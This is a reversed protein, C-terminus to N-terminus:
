GGHCGDTAGNRAPLSSDDAWIMQLSGDTLSIWLIRLKKEPTVSM